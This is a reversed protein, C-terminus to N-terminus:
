LISLFRFRFNKHKIAYNTFWNLYLHMWCRFIVTQVETEHFINMCNGFFHSSLTTFLHNILRLNSAGTEIDRFLRRHALYPCIEPHIEWSQWVWLSWLKGINILSYNYKWFDIPWRSLGINSRLIGVILDLWIHEGNLFLRSPFQNQKLFLWNLYFVLRSIQQNKYQYIFCNQNKM